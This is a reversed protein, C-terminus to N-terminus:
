TKSTLIYKRIEQKFKETNWLEAKKFQGENKATYTQATFDSKTSIIIVKDFPDAYGITKAVDQSTVNAVWHKVQIGITEHSTKARVDIGFDGSRKQEGSEGIVGVEVKYGKEKFLEGVLDEADEWSLRSFNNQLDTETIRKKPDKRIKKNSAIRYLAAIISIGVIIPILLIYWTSDTIVEFNKESINGSTNEPTFIIINKETFVTGYQARITYSNDKSYHYGVSNGFEDFFLFRNVQPDIVVDVSFMGDNIIVGTLYGTHNYNSNFVSIGIADQFKNSNSFDITGSIHITELLAYRSKDSNLELSYSNNEAYADSGLYGIITVLSFLTLVFIKIKMNTTNRIM